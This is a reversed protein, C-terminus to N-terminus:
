VGKSPPGAMMEAGLKLNEAKIAARRELHRTVLDLVPWEVIDFASLNNLERVKVALAWADISLQAATDAAIAHYEDGELVMFDFKLGDYLLETRRRFQTAQVAMELGLLKWDVLDPWAGIPEGTLVGEGFPNEPQVPTVWVTDSFNAVVDRCALVYRELHEALALASLGRDRTEAKRQVRRLRWAALEGGGIQMLGGVLVGALGIGAVLLASADAPSAGSAAVSM